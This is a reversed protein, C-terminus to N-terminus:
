PNILIGVLTLHTVVRQFLVQSYSHNFNNGFTLHTVNLPINDLNIPIDQNYKYSIM